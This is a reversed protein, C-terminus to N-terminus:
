EILFVLVKVLPLVSKYNVTCNKFTYTIPLLNPFFTIVLYQIRCVNYTTCM